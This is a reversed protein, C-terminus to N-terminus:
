SIHHALEPNWPQKHKLMANLITLLKRMCATLAVKKPKGAECLRQYFARIVPNFRSAVLTAMYLTARVQSRGGWVTRKGRLTGSDRNFPAVGVLAAIERRNLSGLEPLDALLTVTLVPGVGPASRLLNERERWVPSQRLVRALDDDLGALEEELVEVHRAIREQVAPVAQRRRNKEAVLMEVVQRRRALLAQLEQAQADPLPRLAPKTAEGFHALVQADLTDTKALKGLAKAFDRVQRPNVVVVPLQACALDGVLSMELGGTAELVVLTPALEALQAVLNTVGQTDHAVQWVEGSPHVAIDLHAKAVDIGIYCPTATKLPEEKSVRGQM